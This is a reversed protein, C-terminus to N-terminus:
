VYWVKTPPHPAVRVRLQISCRAMECIPCLANPLPTPSALLAKYLKIKSPQIVMPHTLTHPQAPHSLSRSGESLSRQRAKM